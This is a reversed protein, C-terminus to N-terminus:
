WQVKCGLGTSAQKAEGDQLLVARMSTKMLSKEEVGQVADYIEYIMYIYIYIYIYMDEREREREREREKVCVSAKAKQDCCRDAKEVFASRYTRKVNSELLFTAGFAVGM